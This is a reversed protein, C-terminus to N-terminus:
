FRCITVTTKTWESWSSLIGFRSAEGPNSCFWVRWFLYNSSKWFFWLFEKQLPGSINLEQLLISVDLKTKLGEEQIRQLVEKFVVIILCLIENLGWAFLVWLPHSKLSSQVFNLSDTEAYHHNRAVTSNRREKGFLKIRWNM